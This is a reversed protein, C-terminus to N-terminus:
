RIHEELDFEMKEIMLDEKGCRTSTVQDFAPIQSVSCGAEVCEMPWAKGILLDAKVDIIRAQVQGGTRLYTFFQDSKPGIM